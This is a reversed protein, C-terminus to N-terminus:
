KGFSHKKLGVLNATEADRVISAVVKRLEVQEEPFLNNVIDIQDSEKESCSVVFLLLFGLILLSSNKKM